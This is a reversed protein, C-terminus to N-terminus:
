VSADGNDREEENEFNIKMQTESLQLLRELKNSLSDEEVNLRYISQRIKKLLNYTNMIELQSETLNEELM